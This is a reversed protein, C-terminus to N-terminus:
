NRIGAVLRCIVVHPFLIEESAVLEETLVIGGGGWNVYGSLENGHECCCVV